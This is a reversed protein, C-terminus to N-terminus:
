HPSALAAVIDSPDTRTTYDPHVDIFRIIKNQDIVLVTPYPLEWEGTGNVVGLDKGFSKLAEQYGESQDHTIGLSRAVTNGVDSLVTFELENSEKTSLSGDPVQPSIAVLRGGLRTVEPLLEQQYTRLTLSCYPCWAGRYFVVVAPGDAVLEDLAVEGGVAEPLKFDIVTSGVTAFKSPEASAVNRAQNATFAELIGAPVVAQAHTSIDNLEETLKSSMRYDRM